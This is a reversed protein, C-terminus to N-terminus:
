RESKVRAIVERLHRMAVDHPVLRLAEVDALGREIGEIVAIESEVFATVADSALRDPSEKALEALRELKQQADNSLKVTVTEGAM